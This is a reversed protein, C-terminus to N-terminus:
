LQKTHMWDVLQTYTQSQSATRPQMEHLCLLGIVSHLHPGCLRAVSEMPWGSLMRRCGPGFGYRHPFECGEAQQVERGAPMCAAAPDAPDASWQHRCGPSQLAAGYRDVLVGGDQPDTHLGKPLWTTTPQVGIASIVLDANHTHGNSLRIQM